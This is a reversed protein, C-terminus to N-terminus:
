RQNNQTIAMTVRLQAVIKRGKQKEYTMLIKDVIYVIYGYTSKKLMAKGKKEIVDYQDYILM